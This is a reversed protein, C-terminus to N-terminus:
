PKIHNVLEIQESIDSNSTQGNQVISYSMQMSMEIMRNTGYELYERGNATFSEFISANLPPPSNMVLSLNNGSIDINFVRYTGAPVTFNQIDGFTETLNGSFAFTSNSTNLASLPIQWTQGAETENKEFASLFNGLWSSLQQLGASGNVNSVFGTRNVEFTVITTQTSNLFPMSLATTEEITYNEGDFSIIDMTMTGTESLNQGSLPGVTSTVNLTMNYTFREGPVYDYVLPMVTRFTAAYNATGNITIDHSEVGGDSWSSYAYLLGSEQSVRSNATVNHKSGNAWSFNCPTTVPNGDVLIFGSGSPSSTITISSPPPSLVVLGFGLGVAAVGIIGLVFYLKKWNRKPPVPPVGVVPPSESPTSTHIVRM